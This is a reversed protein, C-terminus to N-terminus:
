TYRPPELSGPTGWVIIDDDTKYTSFNTFALVKYSYIDTLDRRHWTSSDNQDRKTLATYVLCTKLRKNYHFEAAEFVVNNSSGGSFFGFQTPMWTKFFDGGKNVCKEQEDDDAAHTTVSLAALLVLLLLRQM